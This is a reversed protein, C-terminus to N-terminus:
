EFGFYFNSGSYLIGGPTPTPESTTQILQLVGGHDGVILTGDIKVSGTIEIDNTTAWFSGTQKFIGANNISTLANLFHSSGTDLALTVAGIDGGGSLGNGAVISTIDGLDGLVLGNVTLSGSIDLSGTFSGYDGIERGLQKWGILAM